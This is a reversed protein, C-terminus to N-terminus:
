IAEKQETQADLEDLVDYVNDLKGGVVIHLGPHGHDLRVLIPRSDNNQSRPLLGKIEWVSELYRCKEIAPVFRAADRSMLTFNTKPSKTPQEQENQWTVHPTYRVHSLSYSSYAPFPMFSFFPGDMVTISVDKLERPPEIVALEALQYRLPIQPLDSAKLVSNVSSYTCLWVQKTLIVNGRRDRIEWSGDERHVLNEVRYGTVVDVSSVSLRNTLNKRLLCGDFAVEEVQFVDEVTEPVFLQKIERAAPEIPADISRCFEVFQKANIQSLQSAIAYISVRPRVVCEPFESIFKSYNVRSRRATLFSRPYHYGGHIRAQNKLSAREVLEDCEEVLVVQSNGQELKLAM